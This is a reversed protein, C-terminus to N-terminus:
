HWLSKAPMSHRLRTVPPSLASTMVALRLADYRGCPICFLLVGLFLLAHCMLKLLDLCCHGV